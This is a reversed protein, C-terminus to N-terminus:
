RKKNQSKHGNAAKSFKKSKNSTGKNQALEPITSCNDSSFTLVSVKSFTVSESECAAEKDPKNIAKEMTLSGRDKQESVKGPDDAPIIVIIYKLSFAKKGILM